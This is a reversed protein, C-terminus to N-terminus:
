PIVPVPEAVPDPLATLKPVASTLILLAQVVFGLAAIVIGAEPGYAIGVAGGIAAGVPRAGASATMFLASVRGLLADPTVTQRLTTQSITWLIPGAGFLFFSSGVLIRSPMWLTAVMEPRRRGVGAARHRHVHRHVLVAHPAGGALAGVLMGVGYAALSTGISSATMGLVRAVAYPVYAAQLVFWSLNWFVATLFIPRLLRHTWAFARARRSSAGSTGRRWRPVRRSPVGILLVVASGSLVAALTFAPSAGAWGVLAGALAPGAAIPWAARWSWGAGNAAALAARPM